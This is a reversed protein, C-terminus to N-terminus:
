NDMCINHIYGHFLGLFYKKEDPENSPSSLDIRCTPKVFYKDQVLRDDFNLSFNRRVMFNPIMTNNQPYKNKRSADTKKRATKGRAILCCLSEESEKAQDLKSVTKLSTGITIHRQDFPVPM